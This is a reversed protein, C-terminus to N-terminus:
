PQTVWAESTIIKKLIYSKSNIKNSQPCGKKVDLTLPQRSWPNLGLSKWGWLLAFWLQTFKIEKRLVRENVRRKQAVINKVKCLEFDIWVPQWQKAERGLLLTFEDLWATATKVGALIRGEELLDLIEQDSGESRIGGKSKCIFRRNRMLLCKLISEKRSQSPRWQSKLEINVDGGSRDRERGGNQGQLM